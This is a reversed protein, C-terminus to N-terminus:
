SLEEEPVEGQDEERNGILPEDTYGEFGDEYGLELEDLLELELELLEDLLEFELLEM